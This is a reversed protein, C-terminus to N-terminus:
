AGELRALRERTRRVSIVDGKAEYVHLAERAWSSAEAPRGALELVEAVALVSRARISFGDTDATLSATERAIRDGDRLEGRRALSKARVAHGVVQDELYIALVDELARSAVEEAELYRGQDYLVDALEVLATTRAGLEGMENWLEAGRRLEREAAELDGALCEVPASVFPIAALAWRFGLDELIARSRDVLQRGEDVRGQLANFGGLSRLVAAELPPDRGVEERIATLRPIGEEVPTPGVFMAIGMVALSAFEEHRHGSRRAHTFARELAETTHAYEGRSHHVDGLLRWAHALGKEDAIKELRAIARRALEEVETPPAGDVRLRWWGDAALARWEVASDGIERAAEVAEHLVARGEELRGAETLSEGLDPLLAVRRSDLRPLLAAARGLLNASAHVDGRAVARTGSAALREGARQALEAARRDSPWLEIRYRHAQELHYGVIEEVEAIREDSEDELWAAFSEHLDARVEKPVGRYAADQILVHRFHFADGGLANSRAPRVFQKRLLVDLHRAASARAEDPLLELVEDQRFEKGVIAARELVAREGPGLRELRAALVAQITPPPALDEAPSEEALWAVMQELFLPNGEAAATVATREAGVRPPGDLSEILEEAEAETLPGLELLAANRKGGSWDPREELLELRALCLVLVPADSTFDALHEVLDLFAREGWHLDEIVVLLPQQEALSELLKRVAPFIEETPVAGEGLGIAGSLREVIWARDGVDALLKLLADRPDEQGALEVILDRLPWFTIGEGYPLCRGELVQPDSGLRAVLERALRTKGIGPPGLVTVLGLSRDREARRFATELQALEIERGVLPADLRRAFPPAGPVLELLRWAAVPERKGRLDLPSLPEVRVANSVLRRTPEGMLIEGPTAAQELRAATVVPEGTVLPQGASADRALVEGTNIGIRVALRIDFDRVLEENLAATGDRLESAARLARLADDEHLDPVGFVAMVADGIYKEVSGGHRRIAESGLEFHRALVKRLAEPDLRDALGTSDALDAFLVTVTKRMERVPEAPVAAPKATPPRAPAPLSLARDQRLIAAELGRLEPGPELGLEDILRGRARRYSELAEAQRGSRYLALMLQGTLHERLPNAAVLPELEGVLESQRGLALDADIREELAEQRLEELRAIEGQAFPEYRFDSLPEERFLALAERLMVAARSAEGAQLAKRGEALLREFRESDLEEPEIRLLYGPPRTVLRDRGLAKRLRSVAQQLANQSRESAEGGWLDELLRDRSVVENGHLLLLALLAGRRAGAVPIPRSGEAVELPGLIRFEM